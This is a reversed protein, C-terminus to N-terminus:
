AANRTLFTAIKALNGLDHVDSQLAPVKILPISQGLAGGLREAEQKDRTAWRQEDDLARQLMPYLRQANKSGWYESLLSTAEDSSLAPAELTEHVQNLVIGEYKMAASILKDGLFLAEDIAFRDTSTVLVFAVEESRLAHAVHNARERFGGFLENFAALFAAVTELFALGTFSGIGKLLVTAASGVLGFGSKSAGEYIQIFWRM